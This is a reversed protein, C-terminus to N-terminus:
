AINESKIPIYALKNLESLKSKKIFPLMEIFDSDCFEDFETRKGDDKLKKVFLGSLIDDWLEKTIDSSPTKIYGYKYLFYKLNNFRAYIEKEGGLYEIDSKTFFDTKGIMEPKNFIYCMDKSMQKISINTDIQINPKENLLKHQDILHFLEHRICNLKVDDSNKQFLLYNTKNYVDDNIMVYDVGEWYTYTAVVGDSMLERPTKIVKCKKIKDILDEQNKINDDGLIKKIVDKKADDVIPSSFISEKANLKDVVNNFKKSGIYFDFNKYIMNGLVLGGFLILWNWKSENVVEYKNYEVLYKM